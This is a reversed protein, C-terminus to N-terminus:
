LTFVIFGEEFLNISGYPSDGKELAPESQAELGLKASRTLYRRWPFAPRGPRTTLPANRRLTFVFTELLYPSKQQKFM